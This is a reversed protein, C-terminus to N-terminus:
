YQRNEDSEGDRGCRSPTLGNGLCSSRTRPTACACVRAAITARAAVAAIGLGIGRAVIREVACRGGPATTPTATEAPRGMYATGRGSLAAITAVTPFRGGRGARCQGRVNCFLGLRNGGGPAAFTTKGSKASVTEESILTWGTIAAVAAVCNGGGFRGAALKERHNDRGRGYATTSAFAKVGAICAIRSVSRESGNTSDGM